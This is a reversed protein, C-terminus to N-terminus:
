GSTDMRTAEHRVLCVVLGGTHFRTLGERTGGGWRVRPGVKQKMHGVSATHRNLADSRTFSKECTHCKFPREGTHIRFHRQLQNKKAFKKCCISCKFDRNDGGVCHFSPEENSAAVPAAPQPLLPPPPPPAPKAFTSDDEEEMKVEAMSVVSYYDEQEADVLITPTKKFKVTLNKAKMNPPLAGWEYSQDLVQSFYAYIYM